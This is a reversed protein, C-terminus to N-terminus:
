SYRLQLMANDFSNAESNGIYTRKSSGQSENSGELGPAAGVDLHVGDAVLPGDVVKNLEVLLCGDNELYPRVRPKQIQKCCLRVSSSELQADM